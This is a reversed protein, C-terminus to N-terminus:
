WGVVPCYSHSVTMGMPSQRVTDMPAVLCRIDRESSVDNHHKMNRGITRVSPSVMGIMSDHISTHPPMFQIRLYLGINSSAKDARGILFSRQNSSVLSGALIVARESEQYNVVHSGHHWYGSTPVLVHKGTCARPASPPPCEGRLVVCRHRRCMAQKIM